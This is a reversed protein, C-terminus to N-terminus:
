QKRNISRPFDSGDSRASTVVYYRGVAYVVGNLNFKTHKVARKEGALLRTIWYLLDASLRGIGGVTVAEQPILEAM